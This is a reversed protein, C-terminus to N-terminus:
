HDGLQRAVAARSPVGLKAIIRTVHTEVTRPSLVLQGAIQHNTLGQAVLEAVERERASLTVPGETRQRPLRAALRRQARDAQGALWRAGSGAFLKKARGLQERAPQPHGSAFEAEALLMRAQGEAVPTGARTFWGITPTIEAVATAPLNQAMLLGARALGVHGLRAPMGAAVDTARGLWRRLQASTGAGTASGASTAPGAGAPPPVNAAGAPTAGAAALARLALVSAEAPGLCRYTEADALLEQCDDYEGLAHCAEALHLQVVARYLTSRPPASGRLRDLVPRVAEPGDVWLLPRLRVASALTAAEASGQWRAIEEAEEADRLSEDVRGAAGYLVSRAAYLVPLVHIRGFRVGVDIGREAHALGDAYRDVMAEVWALLAIAGLEDRLAVDGLADIMRGAHSIRVRATPFPGKALACAALVTSAAAEFGRHGGRRAREVTKAAHRAGSRWRGALMENVALELRLMAQSAGTVGLRDLEASLLTSAVDHRGALRELVALQEVATHRHPGAIAVLDHLVARSEDFRGTVSLAKAFLLRLEARRDAQDPRDPLAALAARLWTASTSPASGMTSRAALTLVEVADEDGPELARALHHARLTLPAGRQQLHAAVRRHAALRWAPGAMWYAVARVLPHRFDFTGGAQRLLDRAVLNDLVVGTRCLDLEAAAAVAPVDLGTGVVATAQLVLRETPNLGRVEVAMAGHLATSVPEDPFDGRRLAALVQTPTGALLELYLPNGGSVQHLLRRRSPPEAPLWRDLDPGSLPGLRIRTPAPTLHALGDALRDPCQDTRYAFVVLVGNGPPHRLLYGFFEVSADDAWQVDDFVLLLRAPRALATLLECLRRHRRHREVAAAPGAGVPEAGPGAADLDRGAVADLLAQLEARQAPVGALADLVVGYPLSREFETARGSLVVRGRGQATRVLEALLRSKGIGPEGDLTLFRPQSSDDLLRVTRALEDDRGVFVAPGAASRTATPTGVAPRPVASPEPVSQISM